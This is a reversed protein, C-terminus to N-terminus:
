RQVTESLPLAGLQFPHVYSGPVHQTLVTYDIQIGVVHNDVKFAEVMANSDLITVTDIKIRKEWRELAEVTYIYLLDYLVNDEPEFVLEPLRSGYEPLFCREGPRTGLIMHISQNIKALGGEIDVQRSRGRSSFTLPFSVGKGIVRNVTESLPALRAERIPM